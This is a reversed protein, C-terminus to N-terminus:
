SMIKFFFTRITLIRYREANSNYSTQIKGHVTDLYGSMKEHRPNGLSQVTCSTVYQWPTMLM